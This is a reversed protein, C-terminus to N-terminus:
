RSSCGARLSSLRAHGGGHAHRGPRALGGLGHRLLVAATSYTSFRSPKRVRSVGAQEGLVHLSRGTPLARINADRLPPHRPFHRALDDRVPKSYPSGLALCLLSSTRGRATQSMFSPFDGKAWGILPGPTTPVNSRIPLFSLARATVPFQELGRGRGIWLCLTM